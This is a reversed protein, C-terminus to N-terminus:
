GKKMIRKVARIPSTMRWSTSSRMAGLMQHLALKEVANQQAEQELAALKKKLTAIEKNANQSAGVGSKSTALELALESSIRRLRSVEQQWHAVRGWAAANEAVMHRAHALENQMSMHQAVGAPLAPTASPIHWYHKGDYIPIGRLQLRQELEQWNLGNRHFFVNVEACAPDNAKIAYTQFGHDRLFVLVELLVPEDDYLSSYPTAPAELMGGDLRSLFQGMSELVRLDVGQADIKIFGVHDYGGQELLTDLRVVPTVISDDFFLDPRGAWYENSSISQKNFDLLSSVGWDAHKAVNFNATRAVTDIAVRQLDINAHQLTDAKCKLLDFLEPIPEIGIIPVDPLRAAIPMLFEGNNAGVDIVCTKAM